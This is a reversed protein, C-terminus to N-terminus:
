LKEVEYLYAFDREKGKVTDIKPVKKTCLSILAGIGFGIYGGTTLSIDGFKAGVAGAVTALMTMLAKVGASEKVDLLIRITSLAKQIRTEDLVRHLDELSLEIEEKAQIFAHKQNEAKAIKHVMDDLASRFRLLEAHRARKFEVIKEVSTGPAPVPLCDVISMEIATRDNPETSKWEFSKGFQGISWMIEPDKINLTKASLVVAYRHSDIIENATFIDSDPKGSSLSSEVLIGNDKLIKWEPTGSSDAWVEFEGDKLIFVLNPVCIRDWYLVLRKLRDIPLFSPRIIPKSMHLDFRAEGVVVIGRTAM